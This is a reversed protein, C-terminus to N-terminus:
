RCHHIIQNVTAVYTIIPGYHLRMAIEKRVWGWMSRPTQRQAFRGFGPASLDHMLNFTQPGVYTKTHHQHAVSDKLERWHLVYRLHTKAYHLQCSPGPYRLRQLSETCAPRDPISDRHPRSKGCGDLGARPGVWGGTCHTGPREGPYVHGPGSASWGGGDLASTM